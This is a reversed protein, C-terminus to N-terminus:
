TAERCDGEMTVKRKREGFWGRIGYVLWFLLGIAVPLFSLLLFNPWMRGRRTVGEAALAMVEVWPKWVWRPRCYM